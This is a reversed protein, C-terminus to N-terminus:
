ADGASGIQPAGDACRVLARQAKGDGVCRKTPTGDPLVGRAHCMFQHVDTQCWQADLTTSPCQNAVSGLRFACGHCAGKPDVQNALVVGALAGLLTPMNIKEATHPHVGELTLLHEAMERCNDTVSCALAIFEALLSLIAEQGHQQLYSAMLATRDLGSSAVMASLQRAQDDSLVYSARVPADLTM